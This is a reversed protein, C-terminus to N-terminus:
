RERAVPLENHAPSTDFGPNVGRLRLMTNIMLGTGVLLVMALAVESIALLRRMVGGSVPASGRAGDRLAHNLDSSSAQLAPAMGFLTSTLLSVGLTFLVVRLDVTMKNANPFGAPDVSKALWLVLRIGWFALLLGFAGGLLGLLGSEALSQQVLRARSAGISLRVACEGRRVETRSQMLNAVNACAILLVFAVAGLLPYMVQKAWGFMEEHLPVIKKGVGKNTAPYQLELRKAITDMEVQAQALTVGPRLRAVPTLWHDAREVYRKSESRHAAM